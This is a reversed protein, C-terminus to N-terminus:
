SRRRLWQVDHLELRRTPDGDWVVDFGAATLREAVERGLVTFDEDRDSRHAYALFLLGTEVVREVDQRHFAVWGRADPQEDLLAWM